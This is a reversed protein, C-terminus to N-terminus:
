SYKTLVNMQLIDAKKNKDIFTALPHEKQLNLVPNFNYNIQRAM